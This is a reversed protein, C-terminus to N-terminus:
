IPEEIKEAEAYLEANMRKAHEALSSDFALSSLHEAAIVSYQALIEMEIKTPQHIQAFLTSVMGVLKKRKTLLPTSQVSRYGAQRAAERYPAFDPDIDIDVVIVPAESRFARGCACSDEKTVSKFTRLFPASLGSQAVIILEGRVPMQLNGYEAGHLAIIDKRCTQAVDGVTRQSQ